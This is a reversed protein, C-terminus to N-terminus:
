WGAFERAMKQGEPGVLWQAFERVQGVPEGRAAVVLQRVLPYSGKAIASEEPLVGDVPLLRVFELDEHELRLTSIYGIAGPNSGVYEIVGRSSPMVVATLTVAQDGLVLRDFVDRVGAGAERAVVTLVMGGWEQIRGRYVEHLFMMGTETVPTSPHAVIALGDCYWATEWWNPTTPQGTETLLAIDVEGSSLRERVVEDNFVETEITVWPYQATYEDVLADGVMECSEIVAMRLTVHEHTVRLPQSSCACLLLLCVVLSVIAPWGWPSKAARQDRVCHVIERTLRV